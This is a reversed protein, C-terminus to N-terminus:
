YPARIAPCAALSSPRFRVSVANNYPPRMTLGIDSFINTLVTVTGQIFYQKLLGNEVFKRLTNRHLGLLQRVEKPSILEM